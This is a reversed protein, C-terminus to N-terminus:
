GSGKEQRRGKEEVYWEAGGGWWVERGRGRWGERRKGGERGGEEGCTSTFCVAAFSAFGKSAGSLGIRRMLLM